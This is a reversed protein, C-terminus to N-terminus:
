KKTIIDYLNDLTKIPINRKNITVTNKKANKGFDLEYLWYGIWGNSDNIAIKLTDIFLTAHRSFTIFNFDPDFKKLVDNLEDETKSIEIFEKMIKIFEKKTM